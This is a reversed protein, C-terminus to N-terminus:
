DDLDDLTLPSDAQRARGRVTMNKKGRASVDAAGKQTALFAAAGGIVVVAGVGIATSSDGDAALSPGASLAMSIAAGRVALKVAEMKGASAKCVLPSARVSGKNSRARMNVACTKGLRVSASNALTAMDAIVPDTQM